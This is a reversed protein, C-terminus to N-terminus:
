GHQYRAKRQPYDVCRLGSHFQVARSRTAILRVALSQFFLKEMPPPCAGHKQHAQERATGDKEHAGKEYHLRGLRKAARSIFLCHVSPKCLFRGLRPNAQGVCRRTRTLRQVVHSQGRRQGRGEDRSAPRWSIMRAPELRSLWFVKTM